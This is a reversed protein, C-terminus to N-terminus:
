PCTAALQVVAQRRERSLTDLAHQLEDAAKQVAKRDSRSPAERPYEYLFWHGSWGAGSWFQDVWAFRTDAGIAVWGDPCRIPRDISPRAARAAADAEALAAEFIFDRQPGPREAFARCQALRATVATRARAAVLARPVLIVRRLAVVARPLGPAYALLALTRLYLDGVEKLAARGEDTRSAAVIEKWVLSRAARARGFLRFGLGGAVADIAQGGGRTALWAGYPERTLAGRYVVRGDSVKYWSM